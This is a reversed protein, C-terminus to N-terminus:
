YKSHDGSQNGQLNGQNVTGVDEGTNTTRQTSSHIESNVQTEKIASSTSISQTSRSSKLKKRQSIDIYKRIIHSNLFIEEWKQSPRKIAKKSKLLIKCKIYESQCNKTVNRASSSNNNEIAISIKTWLWPKLHKGTKDELVKLTETIIRKIWKSIIITCLSLYSSLKM